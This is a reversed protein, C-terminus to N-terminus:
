HISRGPLHGSCPTLDAKMGLSARSVLPHKRLQPCGFGVRGLVPGTILSVAGRPWTGHVPLIPSPGFQLLGVM